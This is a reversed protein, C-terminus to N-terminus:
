TLPPLSFSSARPSVTGSNSSMAKLPSSPTTCPSHDGLFEMAPTLLSPGTQQLANCSGALDSMSSELDLM